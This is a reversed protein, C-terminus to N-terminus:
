RDYMMIGLTKLYRIVIDQVYRSAKGHMAVYADWTDAIMLCGTIIRSMQIQAYDDLNYLHQILL